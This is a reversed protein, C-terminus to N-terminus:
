EDELEKVIENISARLKDIRKVTEEIEKNLVKIDIVERTDEKEVYTSVSLNYDNEEIESKDVYRSFYEIEKRNKFEDVIAKINKEELINNNTEKKFEKSADIFLVKNETKNKAMVLICTAISTGFFLNEPLQIVCDIFNNDILYKRITKEAGKRYFIGPFCVIAARGKSSLYALSHMIFAYDAYSKPALKGAPAFREDNILTPDADGVWKISYPPNSVIADFPKEDGHLPNILTDGRKISFNNYNVNHLFMNMRALNYNTMNIEQGFFGEDIIHEDFQKKMQLLLSGSGCTPDYVKNISTKGNMVLRALLKSVTQPTFFEGGSKGANSAYNSILYEYADGFADIENNKFDQFNIGAIGTLIDTLRKNKEAVTGGLRNSTTDVDEFLGKIDDESAFGLASGEIAKFINALDTNLNENNKASKVVNQFLQSPLIFFGKDEVTNPRFDQEAEEDSIDAYDFELDGAEYEASNFFETINESIFRYFLIGLIYQKFDWGDVAGRVDDAIAWIKRHLEARQISENNGKTLDSM